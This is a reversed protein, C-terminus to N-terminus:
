RRGGGEGGEVEERWMRWRGGGEGGEVEERRM